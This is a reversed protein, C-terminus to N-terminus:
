CSVRKLYAVLLREERDCWAIKQEVLSEVSRGPSLANKKIRGQLWETLIRTDHWKGLRHQLREIPGSRAHILEAIYPAFARLLYRYRKLAIRARHLGSPDDLELMATRERLKRARHSIAQRLAGRAVRPATASWNLTAIRVFCAPDIRALRRVARREKKRLEILCNRELDRRLATNGLSHGLYITRLQVDRLPGTLHLLNRVQECAKPLAANEQAIRQCVELVAQLQRAALRLSHLDPESMAHM